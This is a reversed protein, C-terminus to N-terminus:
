RHKGLLVKGEEGAGSSGEVANGGGDGGGGGSEDGGGDEIISEGHAASWWDTFSRGDNYLKFHKGVVANAKTAMSGGPPLKPLTEKVKTVDDETETEANDPPVQEPQAALQSPREIPLLLPDGAALRSIRDPTPAEKHHM